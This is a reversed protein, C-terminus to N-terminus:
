IRPTFAYSLLVALNDIHDLALRDLVVLGPNDAARLEIRWEGLASGGTAAALDAAAVTGDAATTVTVAARGPATVALVVGGASARPTATLVLSLGGLVPDTQPAPFDRAGLAFELVGDAYFSFFADPFLWRLPLPRQRENVTPRARLEALVRDRLDPDFRAEYTFTLRVDTIAEYDLDNIEKPLELTWSSAVGAGQFIRLRRRDGDSLLADTVPDFDSLVLTERNQVRYKVGSGEPTWGRSPLRYVSIGANTLTGTRGRAPVIGDVDVQVHLIRGAYTGPYHTDFDDLSTQFDMRGTRRLQTEFAFPHREALSVTQRLPQRKPASSMVLDYTFSHVDALLTDAALLGEVTDGSYDPRIVALATDNEFNYAQQMRKAMDLAMALYRQALRNMRDGLAHWVDPGFRQDDFAAVLQRAHAVRLQAARQGAVAASVRATAARLEARAQVTVRALDAVQRGLADIEYQRQLRAAALQAAAGDTAAPADPLHSDGQMRRNALWTLVGPDGDEGGSMQASLAQQLTWAWSKTTYDAMAANAQRARAEATLVGFEYADSEAEAAARQRSVTEYEALAQATNQALQTRTLRGQDSKEWFAMADREAGVALQGFTIAAAQLYDFTWIPVGAAWHGWFDLGGDIRQLRAWVDFLVASISPSATIQEPERLRAIVERAVHAAPALGPTAYLESDPATADLRLVREYVALAAAPDDARFLADGWDLYLTALRGWLYPVEVAETLFEYRAASLYWMEATTWEGLAHHCEALGLPVEYHWMHPLSVAVDAAGTPALLLDPRGRNFRRTAYVEALVAGPDAVDGHAWTLSRVEGEGTRFAFTREGTM